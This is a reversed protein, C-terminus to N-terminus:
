LGISAFEYILRDNEFMSFKGEPTYEVIERLIIKCLTPSELCDNKYLGVSFVIFGVDATETDSGKYKSINYLSVRVKFRGVIKFMVKVGEDGEDGNDATSVRTRFNGGYM